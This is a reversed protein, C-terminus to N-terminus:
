CITGYASSSCSASSMSSSCKAMPRREGSETVVGTATTASDNISSHVLASLAAPMEASAMYTSLSRNGTFGPWATARSSSSTTTTRGGTPEVMEIGESANPSASCSTRGDASVPSPLPRPSMHRTAAISSAASKPRCAAPLPASSKMSFLASFFTSAEMSWANRAAIGPSDFLVFAFRRMSLLNSAM